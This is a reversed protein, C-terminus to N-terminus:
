HRGVVVDIIKRYDEAIATADHPPSILAQLQAQPNILLISASHDVLYNESLENSRRYAIGLPRTLTQLEEELGTVGLFAPNFYSVYQGLRETTDRAPDVSIFIVKPHVATDQLQQVVQNLMALTMPCIDPCYTYGFFLFTWQGQLNKETFPQGHQDTLKFSPVTMPESLVTAARTNISLPLGPPEPVYRFELALWVAGFVIAGIGLGLLFETISKPNM